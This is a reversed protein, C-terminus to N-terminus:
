KRVLKEKVTNFTTNLFGGEKEQIQRKLDAEEQQIKELKERLERHKSDEKARLTRLANLREEDEQLKKQRKEDKIRQREEFYSNIKVVIGNVFKFIGYAIAILILLPIVWGLIISLSSLSWRDQYTDYGMFTSFWTGTALYLAGGIFVTSPSNFIAFFELGKNAIQTSKNLGEAFSDTVNSTTVAAVLIPAIVPETSKLENVPLQEVKVPEILTDNDIKEIETKLEKDLSDELEQQLAESHIDSFTDDFVPEIKLEPMSELEKKLRVEVVPSIEVPIDVPTKLEVYAEISKDLEEIIESNVQEVTKPSTSATLPKSMENIELISQDLSELALDEPTPLPKDSM